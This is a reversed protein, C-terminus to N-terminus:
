PATDRGFCASPPSTSTPVTVLTDEGSGAGPCAPPLLHKNIAVTTEQWCCALQHAPCPLVHCLGQQEAQEARPSLLGLLRGEGLSSSPYCYRGEGSSHCSHSQTESWQHTRKSPGQFDFGLPWLQLEYVGFEWFWRGSSEPAGCGSAPAGEEESRGLAEEDTGTRPCSM